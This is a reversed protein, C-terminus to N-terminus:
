RRPSAKLYFFNPAAVEIISDGALHANIFVFKADQVNMDAVAAQWFSM